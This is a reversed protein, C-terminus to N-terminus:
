AMESDWDSDFARCSQGAIGLIWDLHIEKQKCDACFTTAGSPRNSPVDLVVYSYAASRMGTNKACTIFHDGLVPVTTPQHLVGAVTSSVPTSFKCNPRM